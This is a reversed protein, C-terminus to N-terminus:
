KEKPKEEKKPEDKVLKDIKQLLIAVAIADGGKIDAKKILQVIVSLENKNFMHRRLPVCGM